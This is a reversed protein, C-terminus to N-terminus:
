QRHTLFKNTGSESDLERVATEFLTQKMLGLVPGRKGALPRVLEVALPLLESEAATTEAIGAAVAEPGTYRRGTTMAEFAAPAPLRTQILAAMGPTFPIGLDIEPLCFWGRDARMVRRDHALALVAGGAFAHGQLAALSPMPLVCFRALLRQYSALYAAFEEAPDGFRERDLGNSYFKGTGTTVLAAPGTSAEVEDLLEHLAALWATTALNETDRQGPEGLDLVFVEDERRLHPM